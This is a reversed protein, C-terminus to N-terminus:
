DALGSNRIADYVSAAVQTALLPPVANGVQTYQSTRPGCFFYNDPFTQLRAVERVTMSRCQRPDPHIFYHGDKALHSTVTTSPRNGIQVHFRDDFEGNIVAEAANKHNPLLEPPFNRLDPSRGNIASYCAAFIYRHLDAPIHTRTVHNCVGEIKRDVFWENNYKIGPVCKVFEGGRTLFSTSLHTLADNILERLPMDLMGFGDSMFPLLRIKAISERWLGFSDNACSVGSRIRPLGSIMQDVSVPNSDQLQPLDMIGLDCRVGVIFLRHRAQPIGHREMRIIFKHLEQKNHNEECAIPLLRYRPNSQNNALTRGERLIAESPSQLDDLIREFIRQDDLTASLLGKVNEMVFVAPQHDALVQLYEVYLKQRKDEVARYNPNGRNRSRGIVSYAQCPPGGLLIFETNGRIASQIQEHIVQTDMVGLEAHLASRIAAQAAEPYAEFLHRRRLAEPENTLRLYEYYESPVDGLRFQRFFSRLTLTQHAYL